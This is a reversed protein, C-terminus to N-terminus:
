RLIFISERALRRRDLYLAIVALASSLLIVGAATSYLNSLGSVLAQAPAKAVDRLDLVLTPLSVSVINVDLTAMFVSLSVALM